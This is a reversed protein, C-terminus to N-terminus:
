RLCLALIRLRLFRLLRVALVGARGLRHCHRGVVLALALRLVSGSISVACAGFSVGCQHYGSQRVSSPRAHCQGCPLVVGDHGHPRCFPQWWVVAIWHQRPRCAARQFLPGCCIPRHRPQLGHRWPRLERRQQRRWPRRRGHRARQSRHRAHGRGLAYDDRHRYAAGVSIGTISVHGEGGPAGEWM